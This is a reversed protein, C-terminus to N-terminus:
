AKRESGSIRVWTQSHPQLRQLVLQKRKLGTTTSRERRASAICKSSTFLKPFSLILCLFSFAAYTSYPLPCFDDDYMFLVFCFLFICVKPFCLLSLFYVQLSSVSMPSEKSCKAMNLLRKRRHHGWGLATGMSFLTKWYVASSSTNRTKKTFSLFLPLINQIQTENLQLYFQREGRQQDKRLYGLKGEDSISHNIKAEAM